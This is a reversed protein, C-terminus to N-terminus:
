GIINPSVQDESMVADHPDSPTPSPAPPQQQAPAGPQAQNEPQAPAMADGQDPSAKPAVDAM